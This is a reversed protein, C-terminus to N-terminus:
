PIGLGKRRRLGVFGVFGSGLLWVAGPVPVTSIFPASGEVSGLSAFKAGVAGVVGSAELSNSSNSVLILGNNEIDGTVWSNYLDTIDIYYLGNEVMAYDEVLATSALLGEKVSERLETFATSIGDLTAVDVDSNYIDITGPYDETADEVVMGGVGLLDLALYASDVTEAGVDDFKIWAFGWMDLDDYDYALPQALFYDKEGSTYSGGGGMFTYGTLTATYDVSASATTTIFMGGVLLVFTLAIKLRFMKKLM